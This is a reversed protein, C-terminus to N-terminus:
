DSIKFLTLYKKKLSILLVSDLKANHLTKVKSPQDFTLYHANAFNAGKLNAGELNAERLNAGKLYSEKLNAGIFNAGEFYGESLNSETNTFMGYDREKEM